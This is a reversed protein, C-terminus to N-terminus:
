VDTRIKTGRNGKMGWEGISDSEALGVGSSLQRDLMALPPNTPQKTPRDLIHLLIEGMVVGDGEDDNNCSM